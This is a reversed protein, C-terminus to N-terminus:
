VLKGHLHKDSHFSNIHLKTSNIFELSVQSLSKIMKLIAFLMSKKVWIYHTNTLKKNKQEKNKQKKNQKKGAVFGKSHASM